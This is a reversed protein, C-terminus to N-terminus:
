EFPRADIAFRIRELAEHPTVVDYTRLTGIRTVEHLRTVAREADERSAVKSAVFVLSTLTFPDQYPKTSREIEAFVWARMKQLTERENM